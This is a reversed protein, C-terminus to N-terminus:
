GEEGSVPGALGHQLNSDSRVSLAGWILDM